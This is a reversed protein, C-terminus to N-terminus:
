IFKKTYVDVYLRGKKRNKESPPIQVWAIM